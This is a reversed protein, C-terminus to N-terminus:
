HSNLYLFSHTRFLLFFLAVGVVLIELYFAWSKLYEKFFIRKYYSYLSDNKKPKESKIKHISFQKRSFPWLWMIGYEISDLVFHSLTVILFILALTQLFITTSMLFFALGIILWLFPTHSIFQKHTTNENFKFLYSITDIDPLIAFISGLLLLINIESQNFEPNLTKLILLSLLYGIALHGPILM